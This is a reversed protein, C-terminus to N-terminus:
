RYELAKHQLTVSTFEEKLEELGGEWSFSLPKIQKPSDNQKNQYNYLLFDIYKAIEEYLFVPVADIKQHLDFNM